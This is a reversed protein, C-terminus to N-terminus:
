PKHAVGYANIHEKIAVFVGLFFEAGSGYLLDRAEPFRASGIDSSLIAWSTPHVFKSCIKNLVKYEQTLGVANAWENVALYRTRTVGESAM